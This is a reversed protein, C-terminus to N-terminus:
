MFTRESFEDHLTLLIAPSVAGTEKISQLRRPPSYDQVFTRLVTSCYEYKETMERNGKSVTCEQLEGEGRGM